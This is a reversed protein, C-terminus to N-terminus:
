PSNVEVLYLTDARNRVHFLQSDTTRFFWGWQDTGIDGTGISTGEFRGAYDHDTQLTINAM